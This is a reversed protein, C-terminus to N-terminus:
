MNAGMAQWLLNYILKTNEIVYLEVVPNQSEILSGAFPNV